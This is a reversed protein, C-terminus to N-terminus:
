NIQVLIDDATISDVAISASVGLSTTHTSTTTATFPNGAADSGSVSVDFSTDAALDAGAVDVSFVNGAVVTGSYNTGNVTFDIADGVSADGGVSGTVAITTAAEVANIIDDATINDVSITASASTDVSHNSTTNATFPNGANDNGSVTADVSTDAVLDAGKDYQELSWYTLAQEAIRRTIAHVEVIEQWTPTRIAETVPTPVVAVGSRCRLQAPRGSDGEESSATTSVWPWM